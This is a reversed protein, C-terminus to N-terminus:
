RIPLVNLIKCKPCLVKDKSGKSIRFEHHCNKCHVQIWNEPKHNELRQFFELLRVIRKLRHSMVFFIILLALGLICSAIFIIEEQSFMAIEEGNM